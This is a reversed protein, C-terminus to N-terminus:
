LPVVLLTSNFQVMIMLLVMILSNSQGIQELKFLLKIVVTAAARFRFEVTDPKRLSFTDNGWTTTVHCSGQFEQSWSEEQLLGYIKKHGHSKRCELFGSVPEQHNLQVLNGYERVRLISSPIGYCNIM